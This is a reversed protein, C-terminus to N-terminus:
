TAYRARRRRGRRLLHVIVGIVLLWILISLGGHSFFLHLLYALAATRVIRHLLRHSGSRGFLGFRSRPRGFGGGGLHFGGGGLHFGHFALLEPANTAPTPAPSTASGLAAAPALLSVTLSALILLRRM